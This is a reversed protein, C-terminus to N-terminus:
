LDLHLGGIGDHVEVPPQQSAARLKRIEMRWQDDVRAGVAQLHRPGAVRGRHALELGGLALVHDSRM